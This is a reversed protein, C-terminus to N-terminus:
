GSTQRRQKFTNKLDHGAAKDNRHRRKGSIMAFIDSSARYTITTAKLIIIAYLLPRCGKAPRAAAKAPTDPATAAFSMIVALSATRTGIADSAARTTSGGYVTFAAEFQPKTM